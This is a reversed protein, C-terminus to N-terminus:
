YRKMFEVFVELHKAAFQIMAKMYPTEAVIDYGIKGAIAILLIKLLGGIFLSKAWRLSAINDRQYKSANVYAAFASVFKRRVADDNDGGLSAESQKAEILRSEAVGLMAYIDRAYFGDRAKSIAKEGFSKHIREIQDSIKGCGLKCVDLFARQLHGEMKNIHRKRYAGRDVDSADVFIISRIYHDLANRLENFVQTPISSVRADYYIIAQKALFYVRVVEKLDEDRIELSKAYEDARGYLLDTQDGNSALLDDAVRKTSNSYRIQVKYVYTDLSRIVRELM